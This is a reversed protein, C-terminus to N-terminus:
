IVYRAEGPQGRGRLWTEGAEQEGGPRGQLRHSPQSDDLVEGPSCQLWEASPGAKPQCSLARRGWLPGKPRDLYNHSLVVCVGDIVYLDETSFLQDNQCM